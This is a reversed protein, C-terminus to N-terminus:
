DLIYLTPSVSLKVNVPHHCVPSHDEFYIAFIYFSLLYRCDHIYFLKELVTRSWFILVFTTWENHMIFFLGEQSTSYIGATNVAPKLDLLFCVALVTQLVFATKVSRASLNGCNCGAISLDMATEFWQLKEKHLCKKKQYSLEKEVNLLWCQGWTLTSPWPGKPLLPPLM